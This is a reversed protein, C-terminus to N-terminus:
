VRSQKKCIKEAKERFSIVLAIRDVLNSLERIDDLIYGVFRRWQDEDFVGDVRSLLYDLWIDIEWVHEHMKQADRITSSVFVSVDDMAQEVAVVPLLEM